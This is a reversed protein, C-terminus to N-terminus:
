VSTLYSHWTKVSRVEILRLSIFTTKKTGYGMSIKRDRFGYSDTFVQEIKSSKNKIRPMFEMNQATIKRWFNFHYFGRDLLLL